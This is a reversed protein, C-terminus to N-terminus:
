HSSYGASVSPSTHEELQPPATCSAVYLSTLIPTPHCLLFLRPPKSAPLLPYHIPLPAQSLSASRHLEMTFMHSLACVESGQIGSFFGIAIDLIHDNPIPHSYGM